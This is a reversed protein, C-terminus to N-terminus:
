NQQLSIFFRGVPRNKLKYIRNYYFAFQAFYINQLLQLFVSTLIQHILPTKLTFVFMNGSFIITFMPAKCPIFFDAM